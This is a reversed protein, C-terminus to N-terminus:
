LYACVAKIYTTDYDGRANLETLQQQSSLCNLYYTTKATINLLKEKYITAIVINVSNVASISSLDKDTETNNGTSLTTLVLVLGNGASLGQISVNYKVLWFGIPISLSLKNYWADLTPNSTSLNSSSPVVVSWKDTDLPFGAPAKMLSFVPNTIAGSALTYDTGGYLTLTTNPSSYVVKVVIFYKTASAHSLRIRMGPYIVASYDGSCTVTYVPADAAGFTLAPAGIWGDIFNAKLLYQTHDDDGLGALGGHDIQAGDGGVHDHSDGNTVGKGSVAYDSSATYAASGLGLTAQVQAVTKKVFTGAGSAMLMDNVDTALSHKIYQTHDDDGLGGLGGHDVQGGDGGAHDHSDGNTVLGVPINWTGDGRLFKATDNPLIPCFGELATSVRLLAIPFGQPIGAATADHSTIPDNTISYVGGGYFTITTNPSSYVVSVIVFYKVAGQTLRVRMGSSYVGTLDGPYTVSNASAYTWTESIM